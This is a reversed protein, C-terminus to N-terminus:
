HKEVMKEAWVFLPRQAQRTKSEKKWAVFIDTAGLVKGGCHHSTKLGM